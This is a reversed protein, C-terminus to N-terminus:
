DVSLYLLPGRYSTRKRATTSLLLRDLIMETSARDIIKTLVLQENAFRKINGSIDLSFM